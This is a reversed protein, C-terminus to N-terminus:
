NRCRIYLTLQNWIAFFVEEVTLEPLFSFLAKSVGMIISLKLPWERPFYGTRFVHRCIAQLAAFVLGLKIRLTVGMVFFRHPPNSGERIRINLKVNCTANIIQVRDEM